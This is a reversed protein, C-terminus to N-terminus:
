TLGCPRCDLRMATEEYPVGLWKPPWVCRGDAAREARMKWAVTEEDSRDVYRKAAMGNSTIQISCDPRFAEM